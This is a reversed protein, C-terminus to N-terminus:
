KGKSNVQKKPLYQRIVENMEELTWYPWGKTREKIEKKNLGAQALVRDLYWSYGAKIGRSRAEEVKDLEARMQADSVGRSRWVRELFALYAQTDREGEAVGEKCRGEYQFIAMCQGIGDWRPEDVPLEALPPTQKPDTDEDPPGYLNPVLRAVGGEFFHLEAGFLSAYREVEVEAEFWKGSNGPQLGSLDDTWNTVNWKVRKKIGPRWVEPLSIWCMSDSGSNGTPRGANGCSKGDIQFEGIHHGRGYHHVASVTTGRPEGETPAQGSVPKCGLLLVMSLCLLGTQMRSKMTNMM